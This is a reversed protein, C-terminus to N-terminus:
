SFEGITHACAVPPRVRSLSTRAWAHGQIADCQIEKLGRLPIDHQALWIAKVQRGVGNWRSRCNSSTPFRSTPYFGVGM